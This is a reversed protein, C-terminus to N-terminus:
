ATAAAVRLWDRPADVKIGGLAQLLVSIRERKTREVLGIQGLLAGNKFEVRDGVRLRRPYKVRFEGARERDQLSEVEGTKLRLPIGEEHTAILKAVGRTGNVARWAIRDFPLYVFMYGPFIAEQAEQMRGARPRMVTRKPYYVEFGQECLGVMAIYARKVRAVYWSM